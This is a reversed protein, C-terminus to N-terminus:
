SIKLKNIIEKGLKNGRMGEVSHQKRDSIKLIMVNVCCGVFVGLIFLQNLSSIHNLNLSVLRNLFAKKTDFYDLLFM